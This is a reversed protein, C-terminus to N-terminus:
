RQYDVVTLTVWYIGDDLYVHSILPNKWDRVPTGDGFNWYYDVIGNNPGPIIGQPGVWFSIERQEVRSASADFIVSDLTLQSEEPFTFDAVPEEYYTTVTCGCLAFVLLALM